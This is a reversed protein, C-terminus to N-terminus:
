LKMFDSSLVAFTQHHEIITAVFVFGFANLSLYEHINLRRM